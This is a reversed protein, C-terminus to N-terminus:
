SFFPLLSIYYDLTFELLRIYDLLRIYYDLTIDLNWHTYIKLTM